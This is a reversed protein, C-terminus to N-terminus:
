GTGWAKVEDLSFPRRGSSGSLWESSARSAADATPGPSSCRASRRHEDRATAALDVLESPIVRWEIAEHVLADGADRATALAATAPALLAGVPGRHRAEAAAEDAARDRM